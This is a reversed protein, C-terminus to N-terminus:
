GNVAQITKIASNMKTVGDTLLTKTPSWSSAFPAAYISTINSAAQTCSLYTNNLDDYASSYASNSKCFAAAAKAYEAAALTNEKAKVLGPLTSTVGGAIAYAYADTFCGSAFSVYEQGKKVAALLEEKTAIEGVNVATSAAQITFRVRLSADAMRTVIAAMESRLIKDSPNFDGAATEGTIVGARYLTYVSIYLTELSM